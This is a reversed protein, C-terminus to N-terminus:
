GLLIDKSPESKEDGNLVQVHKAIRKLTTAEEIPLESEKVLKGQIVFERTEAVYVVDKM